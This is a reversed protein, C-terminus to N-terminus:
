SWTEGFKHASQGDKYADWAEQLFRKVIDESGFKGDAHYRAVPLWVHVFDAFESYSRKAM